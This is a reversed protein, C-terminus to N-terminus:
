GIRGKVRKRTQLLVIIGVTLIIIATLNWGIDYILLNDTDYRVQHIGMIKHQVIGDYLNFGGLGVLAGGIWRTPWWANRRRLDAVIFLSGVTAVWSFAHFFGDSIIGIRTTSRDYFFHWGLLQHFIVEDLFAALGIGFLIGTWLNRSVYGKQPLGTLHDGKM